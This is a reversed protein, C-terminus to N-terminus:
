KKKGSFSGMLLCAWLFLSLLWYQGCIMPASVLVLLEYLAAGTEPSFLVSCFNAILFVLTLGLSCLCVIRLRRLAKRDKARIGQHLLVFGPVFFLLATIVLLAQGIGAPNQVFGLGVCLIYLCGWIGYLVKEKM